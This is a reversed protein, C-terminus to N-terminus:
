RRADDIVALALAAAVSLLPVEGRRAAEVLEDVNMVLTEAEELDHGDPPRVPHARRAAFFHGTGSGRNGDNVFRGLLTWDAAEYGTEEVLERRAADLPKEDPEIYGAPLHLGVSGPGHKYQRQVLVGDEVFPVVVVYDPMELRYFGSVVRGDPLEIDESWVDLWPRGDFVRRRSVVRWERLERRESLGDTMGAM